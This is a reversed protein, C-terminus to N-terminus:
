FTRHFQSPVSDNSQSTDNTNGLTKRYMFALDTELFASIYGVVPQTTQGIRAGMIHLCSRFVLFLTIRIDACLELATRICSLM